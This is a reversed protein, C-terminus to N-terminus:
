KESMFPLRWYHPSLASLKVSRWASPDDPHPVACDVNGGWAWLREQCVGCPTLIYFKGSEDRSVCVTAAVNKGLKYAECIAGTEHCLSVSDNVGAPATSIIIQGDELYLAAAGATGTKFRQTMFNMASQVLKEDVKM